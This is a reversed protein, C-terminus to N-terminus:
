DDYIGTKRIRTFQLKPRKESDGWIKELKDFMERVPGQFPAGGIEEIYPFNKPDRAWEAAEKNFSDYPNFNRYGAMEALMVTLRALGLGPMYREMIVGLCVDGSKPHINPHFIPTLWKVRPAVRPYDAPLLIEVQHKKSIVPTHGDESLGKFSDMFREFVKGFHSTM